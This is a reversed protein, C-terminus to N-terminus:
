FESNIETVSLCTLKKREIYKLDRAKVTAKIKDHTKKKSLKRENM